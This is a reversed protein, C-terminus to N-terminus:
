EAAVSGIDKDFLNELVDAHYGAYGMEPMTWFDIAVADAFAQSPVTPAESTAGDSVGTRTIEERVAEMQQGVAANPQVDSVSGGEGDALSAVGVNFNQTVFAANCTFLGYKYVGNEYGGNVGWPSFMEFPMSSRSNYAIVAYAHNNVIVSSPPANGTGLVVLDGGAMDAAVTNSNITFASNTLGTLASLAAQITAQSGTNIATYSDSGPSLTGLWGSQNLEVYAKEALAVWLVGNVPEDYLTGGSPLEGDVTVYTPTGNEFFRVTWIGVTAGNVVDTGDYTFMNAIASNDRAAVEAMSALVTCDGLDGQMVDAYSPGTAAFLSGSVASYTAGATPEDIGLFWKNTLDTLQTTSSGVALNGLTITVVNGLSDLSQYTANAPDGNIVKGALNSVYTPMNLTSAGAVLAQLSQFTSASVTAGEGAAAQLLYYMDAFTIAGDRTFDTRALNQLVLDSLNQSFWDSYAVVSFSAPQSSALGTASATVSYTTGATNIIPSFTAQGLSNTVATATNSGTSFTGTSLTLTVTVGSQPVAANSANELQAVTTFAAGVTVSTPPATTIAVQTASSTVQFSSLTMASDLGPATASLNYTGTATVVMTFSAQGSSNTAVTTTSSGNSFTGTVLTVTVNVGAQSVPSNTSSELQVVASFSTGVAVRAAPSTTFALQTAPVTETFSTSPPTSALGTASATVTYSGASSVIVSFSAQGSSNTTTTMTTGGGSFVGSSLTLTVLTGSQSIFGGTSNEIQVVTTFATGVAVSTPPETTFALQTPTPNAGYAALGAILNNAVPSGRGSVEDYGVGASYSKGKYTISGSTIDNFDGSPLSYLATLAQQPNSSSNFTSLGQLVRGENAIAIIGAFSPSSLSTGGIQVWPTSNDYSDYEAVGTSPDADFAVDPITREGTSQFADQYAPEKEYSSTGGGTGDATAYSDSGTSWATESAIGNSSNLTLTTGGVAIVNPSFAPYEGYSDDGTSALFTVGQHGAPTTFTSDSGTESSSETGGWSMSLVSVGPLDAGTKVATYLNTNSSSTAEVLVIKAGPAMAHAWEVDLAEEMEWGGTTDVPVSTSSPNIVQGSQNYVTLFTSAAGYQAYLTPGTASTSTFQEDFTDLDGVINPDNYADVIAITQGAGTAQSGSFLTSNLGYATRIQLPTYGEISSAGISKSGGIHEMLVYTPQFTTSPVIKDELTEIVPRFTRRKRLNLRSNQARLRGLLSQRIHQLWTGFM